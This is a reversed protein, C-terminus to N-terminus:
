RISIQWNSFANLNYVRVTIDGGSVSTIQQQPSSGEDIVFPLSNSPGGGQQSATNIVQVMPAQMTAASENVGLSGQRDLVVSFSNEGDLLATTGTINLKVVEVENPYSLTCSGTGMSFGVNASDTATITANGDIWTVLPLKLDSRFAVTDLGTGNATSISSHSLILHGDRSDTNDGGSNYWLSPNSLSTIIPNSALAPFVMFDRYWEWRDIMGPGSSFSIKFRSDQTDTPLTAGAFLTDFPNRFYIGSTYGSRTGLTVAPLASYARNFVTVGDLSGPELAVKVQGSRKITNITNNTNSPDYNGADDTWTSDSFGGTGGQLDVLETFHTRICSNLDESIGSIVAPYKNNPTEQVLAGIGSPFVSTVADVDLVEAQIIGGTNDVINQVVFRVCVDEVSMYLVDGVSLSDSSFRGIPDNFFGTITYNPASGTTGFINLTGRFRNEAQGCLLLPLFLLAFLIPRM